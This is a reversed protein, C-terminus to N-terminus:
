HGEEDAGSSRFGMATMQGLPDARDYSLTSVASYIPPLFFHELEANHSKRDQKRQNEACVPYKNRRSEYGGDGLCLTGRLLLLLNSSRNGQRAHLHLGQVGVTMRG